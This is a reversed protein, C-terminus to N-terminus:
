IFNCLKEPVYNYYRDLLYSVFEVSHTGNLDKVLKVLLQGMKRLVSLYYYKM